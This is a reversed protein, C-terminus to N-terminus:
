ANKATVCGTWVCATAAASTTWSGTDASSVCDATGSNIRVDCRRSRGLVANDSHIPLPLGGGAPLLMGLPGDAPNMPEAAAPRDPTATARTPVVATSGDNQHDADTAPGQLFQLAMDDESVPQDAPAPYDIVFRQKAVNLVQGPMIRAQRCRRGDVGTGNRSDLDFVRWINDVFELRCHEGSVSKAPIVVDCEAHRGVVIETKLLPLPEGGGAPVLLGYM